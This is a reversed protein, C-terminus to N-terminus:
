LAFGIKNHLYCIWLHVSKNQNPSNYMRDTYADDTAVEYDYTRLSM